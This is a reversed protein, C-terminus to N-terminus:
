ITISFNNYKNSYKIMNIYIPPFIGEYYEMTVYMNDGSEVGLLIDELIAKFNENETTNENKDCIQLTSYQSSSSPYPM